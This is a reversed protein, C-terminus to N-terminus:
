KRREEEIVQRVAADLDGLDSKRVLRDGVALRIADILELYLGDRNMTGFLASNVAKGDFRLEYHTQTNGHKTRTTRTVDHVERVAAWHVEAILEVKGRLPGLRSQGTILLGEDDVTAIHDNSFFFLLFTLAALALGGSLGTAIMPPVGVTAVLLGSFATLGMVLFVGLFLTMFWGSSHHRIVHPLTTPTMSDRVSGSAAAACLPATM